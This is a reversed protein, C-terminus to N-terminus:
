GPLFDQTKLIQAFTNSLSAMVAQHVTQASIHVGNWVLDKTTCTDELLTVSFDLDKAARVSSDICMHSMMGCVVLHEIKRGRLERELGTRIFANPTHKVLVPEEGIPCVSSHIEGGETGPLFFGAEENLSVHRIHVIPLNSNRFYELVLRAQQAAQEPQFLESRGGSFYDNQIDVLLLASNM